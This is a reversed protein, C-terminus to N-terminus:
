SSHIILALYPLTWPYSPSTQLPIQSFISLTQFM